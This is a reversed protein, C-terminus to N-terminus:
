IIIETPTETALLACTHDDQCMSGAVCDSCFISRGKTCKEGVQKTKKLLAHCAFGTPSSADEVCMGSGGGRSVYNECGRGCNLLDKSTPQAKECTTGNFALAVAAEKAPDYLDLTMKVPGFGHTVTSDYTTFQKDACPSNTDAKTLGPEFIKYKWYDSSKMCCEGCKNHLKDVSFYKELGGGCSKCCPGADAAAQELRGARAAQELGPAFMTQIALIAKPTSATVVESVGLIMEETWEPCVFKVHKKDQTKKCSTRNDPM